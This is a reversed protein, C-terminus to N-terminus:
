LEAWSGDLDMQKMKGYGATHILDGPKATPLAANIAADSSDILAESVMITNNFGQKDTTFFYDAM